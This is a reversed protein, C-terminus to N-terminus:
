AARLFRPTHRSTRQARVFRRLSALGARHSARQTLLDEIASDEGSRSAAHIWTQLLVDRQAHSGGLRHLQGLMPLLLLSAKAFDGRAHAVVAQAVPLAVMAWLSEGAGTAHRAMSRLFDDALAANGSRALARAFHVDHFPLIHEFGREGVKAAIATWRTGADAGAMELRWLSSIAGVQEQAFEPWTGWLHQDHIHLARTHEGADLHLQALHWWNHERVFISRDAWGSSKATLMRIADKNRDQSEYTHALAHHAWPEDPKMALARLAAEEALALRHCQEEAFALMGWAEPTDQHARIVAQAMARMTAADGLNFAHYQGWKAAAIDTPYREVLERYIAAAIRTEGMSWADVAAITMQERDTAGQANRRMRALYPEAAVFGSSAELAMHVSAACANVFACDPDADAAEFITRLRTGYGIWDATYVDVGAATAAHATTLRNGFADKM